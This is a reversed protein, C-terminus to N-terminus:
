EGAAAPLQTDATAAAAFYARRRARPRLEVLLRRRGAGERAPRLQGAERGPQRDHARDDGRPHRPGGPKRERANWPALASHAAAGPGAGVSLRRDARDASRVLFYGLPIEGLLKGDDTLDIAAADQGYAEIKGIDHVLAGTVTLDRDVGPFWASVASVGQAVLLTHELLGHAYAQHYYKAAPAARFRRWIDSREGFLADLLRCLHPNRVTAVLARLDAEMQAVDMPPGDLLDAPEYDSDAVQVVSEITLQPGFRESVAYRGQVRVAAGLEALEHAECAGEWCVAPVSGTVDSLSLRLFDEGNKKKRLTRERVLFVSDVTQGDSLDRVFLKSVREPSRGNAEFLPTDYSASM